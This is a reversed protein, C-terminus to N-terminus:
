RRDSHSLPPWFWTSAFLTAIILVTGGALCFWLIGFGLNLWTFVLAIIAGTLIMLSFISSFILGAIQEVRVNRSDLPHFQKPNDYGHAPEGLFRPEVDNTSM